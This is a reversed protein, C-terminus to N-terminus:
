DTSTVGPPHEAVFVAQGPQGRTWGEVRLIRMASVIVGQKWGDAKLMGTSPLRDGPKLEGSKIKARLLEALQEYLPLQPSM